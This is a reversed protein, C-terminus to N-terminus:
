NSTINAGFSKKDCLLTVGFTFSPSTGAITAVPQVYRKTRRLSRTVQVGAATVAAPAFDGIATFTGNSTDCETLTLTLTPTTGTATGVNIIATVEPDCGQFDIASGTGTSTLAQSGFGNGVVMNNPIDNQRM